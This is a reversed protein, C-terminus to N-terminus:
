RRREGDNKCVHNPHKVVRGLDVDEHLLVVDEDHVAAHPQLLAHLRPECVHQGVDPQKQAAAVVLDDLDELQRPRLYRRAQVSRSGQTHTGAVNQECFM